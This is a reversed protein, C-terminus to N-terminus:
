PMGHMNSQPNSSTPRAGNIGQNQHSGGRGASANPMTSSPGSPRAVNPLGHPMRVPFKVVASPRRQATSKAPRTGPATSRPVGPPPMNIQSASLGTAGAGANATQKEMIRQNRRMALEEEVERQETEDLPADAADEQLTEITTLKKIQPGEYKDDDALQKKLVKHLVAEDKDLWQRVDEQPMDRPEYLWEGASGLAIRRPNKKDVVRQTLSTKFMQKDYINDEFTGGIVLRYVFVPKTQGIRYARGVAQEEHSPNFGFDLIVVRNAGQINLGVGARTSMLMVKTTGAHFKDIAPQRKPIPVSGDIRGCSIGRQKIVEEVIDLTPISGSFVLVKDGCKEALRLIILLMAMKKSYEPRAEDDIDAVMDKKVKDSFSLSQVADDISGYDEAGADNEASPAVSGSDSAPPTSERKSKKTKSKAKPPDLLKRKFALPHNMLLTLAALWAFIRTQPIVGDLNNTDKRLAQLYKNYVVRQINSLPMMIVFETKPKLSGRLVYIDARNVKPEIQNRLVALKKLMKRVEYPESDKRNGQAIPNSYQQNFWMKEGLYNPAAFSVLSYIEDVNNSMPTGTLGIRSETCIRAAAQTVKAKANKLTHVEDAVVLEPGEILYKDLQPGIERIHAETIPDKWNAYKQFLTYTIFLMGGVKYWDGLEALLHHRKKGSELAFTNKLVHPAWQSVERRWNQVLAAPVLILMRLQREQIDAPRLHEPIQEYVAPNNSQAAENIAVLTAITQVTKGLGMTHALICGQGGEDGGATLERWMFQIGNIQHEKLERAIRKDIFIFEEGNEKSALPNIAVTSRSPDSQIMAQLEQSNSGASKMEKFRQQRLYAAAQSQEANIDLKVKKAKRKKPTGALQTDDEESSGVLDIVEGQRGSTPKAPARWLNSKELFLELLGCFTTLALRDTSVSSWPIDAFSDDLLCEPKCYTYALFLKGAVVVDIDQNSGSYDRSLVALVDRLKDIFPSKRLAKIKRQIAARKEPGMEYLLRIMIRKRDSASVLDDLNWSAVEQASDNEPTASYAIKKRKKKPPKAKVPTSDSSIEIPETNKKQSKIPTNMHKRAPKKFMGSPSTLYDSETGRDNDMTQADNRQTQRKEPKISPSSLDQGFDSHESSPHAPVVDQDCNPTQHSDALLDGAEGDPSEADNIFDMDDHVSYEDSADQDEEQGEIIPETTDLDGHASHFDDDDDNVADYITDDREVSFRDNAHVNPIQRQTSTGAFTHGSDLRAGRRAIHHPEKKRQWVDIKWRQEEIDEVTAEMIKCQEAVEKEDRWEGHHMETKFKQVRQELNHILDLSGNILNDRITRSQRTRKWVTWAKKEEMRPLIKDKWADAIDRLAKDIMADLRSGVPKTQQLEDEEVEEEEEMEDQLSRLSGESDSDMYAPLVKEDATSKHKAVLFDWEGSNSAEPLGQVSIENYEIGSDVFAANERKAVYRGHEAMQVVLASRSTTGTLMREPYPDIAIADRGHRITKKVSGIQSEAIDLNLFHRIQKNVYASLGPPKTPAQFQFCQEAIPLDDDESLIASTSLAHPSAERTPPNVMMANPTDGYSIEQGMQTSGFFINDVPLKENGLFAAPNHLASDRPATLAISPQPLELRRKKRASGAEESNEGARKANASDFIPVPSAPEQEIGPIAVPTAAVSVPTQPVPAEDGKPYSRSWTKLKRICHVIASRQGLSRIGCDERLFGLDVGDFLVAGCVDNEELKQAFSDLDPLRANPMDTILTTAHNRFFDAVATSTWKWPDPDM